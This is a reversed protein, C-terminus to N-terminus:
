NVQMLYAIVDAMAQHDMVKELGEPMISLATSQLQDLDSRLITDQQIESSRLTISNANEATIMGKVYRGDLTLAVYNLYQPNIERNPDLVNTLIAEPGRTKMAALNPGLEYGIGEVKHCVSCREKFIAKGRTIDGTLQLAQQYDAVVDDRRGLNLSKLYGAARDRVERNKSKSALQLQTPSLSRTAITEEDIADFMALTHQPRAFLVDSAVQRLQPSLGPWAAVLLEAVRADSYRGLALIAARQVRHPQRNDILTELSREVEQFSGFRLTQIAKVRPAVDASDDIALSALSQVMKSVMRDLDRLSGRSSMKALVSGQRQRGQLLNGIVPLAFSAEQDSVGLLARVAQHTDTERNQQGIQTALQSLFEGAGGSRFRADAVLNAFVEGPNEALSSQIAARMWADDHDSRILRTLVATRPTKALSGASFALQYRVELAPDKALQSLKQVLPQSLDLRQSLRIAHRRVQPHEDSLAAMISAEDLMSIGDLAYLAHMRAKPTAAATAMQR